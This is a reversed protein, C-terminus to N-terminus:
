KVEIFYQVSSRLMAQVVCAHGYLLTQRRVPIGINLIKVIHVYVRTNHISIFVVNYTGRALTYKCTSNKSNYRRQTRAVAATVYVGM